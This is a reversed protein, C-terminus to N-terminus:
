SGNIFIIAGDWLRKFTRKFLWLNCRVNLLFFFPRRTLYNFFWTPYYLWVCGRSSNLSMCWTPSFSCTCFDHCVGRAAFWCGLSPVQFQWLVTPWTSIIRAFLAPIFQLRFSIKKLQGALCCFPARGEAASLGRAGQLSVKQGGTM